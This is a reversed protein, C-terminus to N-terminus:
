QHYETSIEIIGETQNVLWSFVYKELMDNPIYELDNFLCRDIKWRVGSNRNASIFGRVKENM